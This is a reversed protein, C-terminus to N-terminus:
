RRRGCSLGGHQIPEDLPRQCMAAEHESNGGEDKPEPNKRCEAQWYFHEGVEGLRSNHNEGFCWTQRGLLHFGAHRLRDLRCKHADGAQGAQSRVGIDRKGENIGLKVPTGIELFAAEEHLFAELGRPFM